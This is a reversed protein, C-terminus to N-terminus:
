FDKPMKQIQEYSFVPGKKCVLVPGINCRGCKGIGCKMKNELTTFIADPRFGLEILEKIVFKIMVVPGCTVAITNDPAPALRKVNAPVFGVFGKWKEEPRDVSLEVKAKGSDSIRELENRFVLDASTRAGYVITIDGFDSRNDLAYMYASRLPPLGIGGGIFLLNRGKWDDIPFGNGYPGRVGIREGPELYHMVSTVRGVRMVTFQLTRGATPSSAISIMSEGKGFVSLMALQGPRYNFESACREDEFDVMFTRVAREGATEQRVERVIAPHPLYPNEPVRM